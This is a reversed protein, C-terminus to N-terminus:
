TWRAAKIVGSSRWVFVDLQEGGCSEARATPLAERCVTVQWARGDVHRVELHLLTTEPLTGGPKVPIARGDRILLVDLVDRDLVGEMDRVAIEAVQLPQPFASRGRYNVTSITRHSDEDRIRLVDDVGLRGYVAGSPLSLATPAFRHGGIHSVEWVQARDNPALRDLTAALLARGHVACCQDRGSHTCIFLASDKVSVGFPPLSGLAIASLDWSGIQSLDGTVAHRMRTDGPATHAVWINRDAARPHGLPEGGRMDRELRDPHRALLVTTGSDASAAKLAAGLGADLRSEILAQRGWPGPQEIIIWSQSVPATGALPETAALSGASCSLTV